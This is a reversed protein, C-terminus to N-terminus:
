CFVLLDDARVDVVFCASLSGPVRVVLLVRMKTGRRWPKMVVRCVGKAMTRLHVEVSSVVLLLVMASLVAPILLLVPTVNLVM